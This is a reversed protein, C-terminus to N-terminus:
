GRGFAPPLNMDKARKEMGGQTKTQGVVHGLRPRASANVARGVILDELM